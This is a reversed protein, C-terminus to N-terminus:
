YGLDANYQYITLLKQIEHLDKNQKALSAENICRLLETMTITGNEYKTEASKKIKNRLDVIKEDSILM